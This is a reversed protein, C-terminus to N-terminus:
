GDRRRARRPWRACVQGRRMPVCAEYQDYAFHDHADYQAETMTLYSDRAFLRERREGLTSREWQRAGSARSRTTPSRPGFRRSTARPRRLAPRGVLAAGNWRPASNAHPARTAFFPRPSLFTRPLVVFLPVGRNTDRSEHRALRANRRSAARRRRRVDREAKEIEAETTETEIREYTVETLTGLPLVLVGADRGPTTPADSLACAWADRYADENLRVDLADVCAAFADSAKAVSSAFAEPSTRRSTKRVPHNKKM